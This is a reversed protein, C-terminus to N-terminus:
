QGGVSCMALSVREAGRGDVLKMGVESIALYKHPSSALEDVATAYTDVSLGAAAGLYRHGGVADVDRASDEQYPSSASVAAPLGLCLRENTSVGVSGLALDAKLMLRAMEHPSVYCNVGHVKAALSLVRERDPNAPGIVVDTKLKKRHLRRVAELAIITQRETDAGGFCIHVRNVAGDRVTLRSRAELFEARLLAYTPGLLLLCANPVLTAYRFQMNKYYNQDLLVDCDHPRNALDDIVMLKRACSRLLSEWTVDLQYHDVVMWDPGNPFVEEVANMTMKADDHQPSIGIQASPLKVYQYGRSHLLDSLGGPLYRCVFAVEAGDSRLQEALALCRMLHGGGIEMSADTRILVKM